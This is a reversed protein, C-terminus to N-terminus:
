RGLPVFRVRGAPWLLAPPTRGADWLRLDTRGILNWGGPVTLPYVATQKGAIGVSGAPVRERPRARRPTVLRPALPGLYGFGPAFGLFWVRYTRGAHLEILESRGLGLRECVEDLDPGDPGGYRVPIELVDAHPARHAVGLVRERAVLRRLRAVADHATLGAPDYPVLLSEYSPVPRGWPGGTEGRVAAALAHVRENVAEDLGGGWVILCAADGYPAVTPQRRPRRAVAARTM